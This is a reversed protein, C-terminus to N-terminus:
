ASFAKLPLAYGYSVINQVFLSSLTSIWFSRASFLKSPLGESSFSAECEFDRFFACDFLCKNSDVCTGSNMRFVEDTPKAVDLSTLQFVARQRCKTQHHGFKRCAFCPGLSSRLLGGNSALSLTLLQFSVLPLFAQNSPLLNRKGKKRMSRRWGGKLVISTSIMRQIQHSSMQKM